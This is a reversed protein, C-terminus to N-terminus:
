PVSRIDVSARLVPSHERDNQYTTYYTYDSPIGATSFINADQTMVVLVGAAVRRLCCSGHDRKTFIIAIPRYTMWPTREMLHVM